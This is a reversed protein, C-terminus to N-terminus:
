KFGASSALIVTTGSVSLYCISARGGGYSIRAKGAGSFYSCSPGGGLRVGM